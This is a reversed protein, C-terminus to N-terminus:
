RSVTPTTPEIGIAGVFCADPLVVNGEESTEDSEEHNALATALAPPIPLLEPAARTIDVIFLTILWVPFGGGTSRPPAGAASPQLLPRASRVRPRPM